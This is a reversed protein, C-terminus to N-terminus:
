FPMSATKLPCFDWTSFTLLGEETKQLKEVRWGFVVFNTNNNNSNNIILTYGNELM